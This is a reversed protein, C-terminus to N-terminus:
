TDVFHFQLELRRRHSRQLSLPSPNPYPPSSLRKDSRKKPPGLSNVPRQISSNTPIYVIREIYSRYSAVLWCGLGILGVLYLYSRYYTGFGVRHDFSDIVKTRRHHGAHCSQLRRWWTRRLNRDKSPEFRTHVM